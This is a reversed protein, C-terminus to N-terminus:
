FVTVNPDLADILRRLRTPADFGPVVRVLVTVGHMAPSAFGSPTAPQFVAPVKPALPFASQIDGVVGIVERTRGELEVTQGVAQQHPWVRGAMTENVLIVSAGDREDRNDFERGSRLPAGVTGFFGAGVREARMAGFSRASGAFEVKANMMMDGSSMALPLTQALSVANVGVVNRLRQPLKRFFEAAQDPSYGDRVPDLNVLYLNAPEFGVEVGASRQWGVVVFGTLLLLVTSVAVQQFVLVNRMNFWRRGGAGSASRSTLGAHVNTRSSRLAPILGFVFSSGAAILAAMLLSRWDLRTEFNVYSPIMPRTSGIVSTFWIALVVGGVAGILSLLLSETLLQRVIRGPGAGLSLRVAMERRRAVSRALLLNAVNGCAMLLVLAVLLLPFGM